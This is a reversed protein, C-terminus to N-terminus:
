KIYKKQSFSYLGDCTLKVDPIVILSLFSLLMLPNISKNMSLSSLAENLEYRKELIEEISMSSMLGAIDLPFYTLKNNAKIAIGGDVGLANIVDLIDKENDGLAIINHSDHGITQAIAGGKLNFGKVFCKGILGLKKHREISYLKNLGESSLVKIGKTILTDPIIEMVTNDPNFDLKLDSLNIEKKHVSHIVNALNAKNPKFLAKNDKAVLKGKYYVELNKDFNLNPAIIFNAFYGKEILGRKELKFIKYGNYSAIRIADFMDIGNNIAIKISDIITGKKYLDEPEKDDTAFAFHEINDKSIAKCLPIIDKAASGNRILINMGCDIKELADKANTSEHDTYIGYSIYKKLNNGSLFPAHGDIIMNNNKFFEIKEKIKPDDSLIGNIDMMEGLGYLNYKKTLKFTENNDLIYGNHELPTAPVCSPMMIKIDSPINKIDDCIFKIGDEGCVNAIEHPDAIYACTGYPISLSLYTSPRMQASEFHLHTDIFSPYIYKDKSDLIIDASCINSDIDKIYEDEVLVNSKYIEKKLIDVVNINKFLTKM